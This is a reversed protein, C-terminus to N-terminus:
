RAVGARYGEEGAFRCLTAPVLGLVAERDGRREGGENIQPSALLRILLGFVDEQGHPGSAVARRQPPSVSFPVPLLVLPHERDHTRTHM